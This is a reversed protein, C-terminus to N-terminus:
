GKISKNFANLVVFGLRPFETRRRMVLPSLVADHTFQFCRVSKSSYLFKLPKLSQSPAAIKPVKFLWLVALYLAVLGALVAGDYGPRASLWREFGLRFLYTVHWCLAVVLADRAWAPQPWAQGSRAPRGASRGRGHACGTWLRPRRARLTRPWSLPCREDPSARKPTGPCPGPRRSTGSPAAACGGPRARPAPAPRDERVECGPAPQVRRTVPSM